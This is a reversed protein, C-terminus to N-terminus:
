SCLGSDLASVMLGSHRGYHMYPQMILHLIDCEKGPHPGIPNIATPIALHIPATLIYATHHYAPTINPSINFAFNMPITGQILVFKQKFNFTLTPFFNSSLCLCSPRCVKCICVKRKCNKKSYLYCECKLVHKIM